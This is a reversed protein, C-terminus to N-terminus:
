ETNVVRETTVEDHPMLGGWMITDYKCIYDAWFAMTHTEYNAEIDEFCDFGQCKSAEVLYCSLRLILEERLERSEPFDPKYLTQSIACAIDPFSIDKFENSLGQEAYQKMTEISAKTKFINLDTHDQDYYYLAINLATTETTM